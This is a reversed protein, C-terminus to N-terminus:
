FKVLLTENLGIKYPGKAMIRYDCSISMLCGGAPAHGKLIKFHKNLFNLLNFCNNLNVNIAAIYVKNSGYLRIWFDQLASWFQRIRDPKPQYMELIDLGASFINPINSTLIVGNIDKAEEFKDLQINLETLFELNLSNVPLKNMKFIVYGKDKRDEVYFLDKNTSDNQNLHKSTSFL